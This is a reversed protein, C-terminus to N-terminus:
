ALSLISSNNKKKKIKERMNDDKEIEKGCLLFGKSNNKNGKNPGFTGSFQLPKFFM